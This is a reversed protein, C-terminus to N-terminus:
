KLNQYNIGVPKLKMKNELFSKSKRLPRRPEVKAESRYESDNENTRLRSYRDTSFQPQRPIGSQKKVADINTKYDGNIQKNRTNRNYADNRADVPEAEPKNKSNTPLPPRKARFQSKSKQGNAKKMEENKKRTVL